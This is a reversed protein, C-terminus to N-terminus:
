IVLDPYFTVTVDSQILVEREGIVPLSIIIHYIKIYKYIRQEQAIFQAGNPPLYSSYILPFQVGNVEFFNNPHIWEIEKTMVYYEPKPDPNTETETFAWYYKQDVYHSIEWLEELNYPEFLRLTRFVLESIADKVNLKYKIQNIFYPQNDVFAVEHMKLNNLEIESLHFKGTTEQNSNRLFADYEKWFRNYLGDERNCTLSIDYKQGTSDQMFNGRHDRNFQSAFSYYWPNMPTGAQVLGWCFIFALKAPNFNEDQIEGAIVLDSYNHKFNVLYEPITLFDYDSIPICLDKMEIDEYAIKPTKKDWDFFDASFMFADRPNEGFLKFVNVIRYRSNRGNFTQTANSGGNFQNDFRRLFEEFTDYLVKAQESERNMKLRLQKPTSFSISLEETKNRTLDNSESKPDVLDKVFKLTVKKSNSDIFYLMGFKNFLGELFEKITIDPLMDKYNLVGTLITDMTNNLVGLKKLQRHTKFPNEDITFDFHNFILELVRWVKLFPSVGYGKPATITITEGGEIRTITRNELALLEGQAVNTLVYQGANIDNLIELQSEGKALVIPFIYYDAEDQEKMIATLHVLMSDIKQDINNGGFSVVPLDPIENLRLNEFKAYMESEDYGINASIINESASNVALLGKQQISGTEVIVGITEEQRLTRDTRFPYNLLRNNKNSTPFNVPVTQSGKKQFLPNNKEAEIIYGTPLDFVEGGEIKRIKIM